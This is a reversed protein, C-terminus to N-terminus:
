PQGARGPLTMTAVTGGGDSRNEVTVTGDLESVIAQVITLGLGRGGQARPASSRGFPEFVRARLADDLGPGRDTVWISVRGDQWTSRLEVDGAGHRVANDVLNSLARELRGAHARVVPRGECRVVIRRGEQRARASFRAASKKLLSRVDVDSQDPPPRGDQSSALLLLDDSLRTLRDVDEDASRLVAVLEDASRPQALALDLELKLLALPTRLEHSAEAVFRRERQLGAELRDLMQNLTLGLQHLEDRAAPLPLREGSSQASIAEAHRRMREMPRLAAGAALYGAVSALVLALPGGILLQTRVGWLADDLDERSTGVALVQDGDRRLLLIAAEREDEEILLVPREVVVDEGQALGPLDGTVMSGSLQPSSVVVAGAPTLVQGFFEGTMAGIAGRRASEPLDALADMQADLSVRAQDHLTAEVRYYVFLGLAVFAITAAATFVAVVRQRLPWRDRM